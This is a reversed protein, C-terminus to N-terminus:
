ALKVGPGFNKEACDSRIFEWIWRPHFVKGCALVFLLEPGLVVEARLARSSAPAAGQISDSLEPKPEASPLVNRGAGVPQM